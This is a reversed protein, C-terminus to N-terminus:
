LKMEKLLEYKNILRFYWVVKIALMFTIVICYFAIALDFSQLYVGLLLSMAKLIVYIFEIQAATKQKFFINPLFSLSAVLISLFLGPLLLKLYLGVGAWHEGFLFGFAENPVFALLIFFPLIFILCMKCFLFCQHRIAIKNQIQESMKKYLVQCVSDGFLNVPTLGITLALSFLGINGMEFYFSLLLVPLYGAFANLLNHPLQFKPFNSYTKAVAIIEQKDWQKLHKLYSRGSILSVTTAFFQGLLQGWVLGFVSCGKFGLFCKMGSSVSSQTINYVSLNYYRKQRVFYYNLTHWFGWLLLYFPLYPLLSVLQEQHFLAAINKGFFHVIVFFFIFCFLTLLLSLHFLAVAKKEQKPLVIAAEYRGTTFFALIGVICLFLNFEGFIKPAYLRTIIPYVAFVIIQALVNSSLLAASHKFFESAYIHKLRNGTKNM